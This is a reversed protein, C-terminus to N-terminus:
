YVTMETILKQFAQENKIATQVEDYLASNQLGEKELWEALDSFVSNESATNLLHSEPQLTSQNNAANSKSM